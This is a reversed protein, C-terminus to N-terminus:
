RLCHYLCGFSVCLFPFICWDGLIRIGSYMGDYIGKYTEGYEEEQEIMLYSQNTEDRGDTWNM